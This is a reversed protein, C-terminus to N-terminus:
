GQRMGEPVPVGPAAQVHLREGLGRGCVCNGAGSHVDRAYVHPKGYQAKFPGVSGEWGPVTVYTPLPNTM